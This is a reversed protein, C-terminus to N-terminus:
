RAAFTWRNNTRKLYIRSGQGNRNKKVTGAGINHSLLNNMLTIRM